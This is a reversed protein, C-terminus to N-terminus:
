EVRLRADVDHPQEVPDVASPGRHEYGRVVLRHDVLHATAHELERLTPDHTVLGRTAIRTVLRRAFKRPPHAGGRRERRADVYSGGSRRHGGLLVSGTRTVNKTRSAIRDIRRFAAGLKAARAVTSTVISTTPTNM